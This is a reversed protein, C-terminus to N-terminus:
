SKSRVPVSCHCPRGRRFPRVLSSRPGGYLPDEASQSARKAVATTPTRLLLLLRSPPCPLGPVPKMEAGLKPHSKQFTVKIEPLRPNGALPQAPEHHPSRWIGAMLATTLSLPGLGEAKCFLIEVCISLLSALSTNILLFFLVTRTSLCM